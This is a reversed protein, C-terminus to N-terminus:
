TCNIIFQQVEPELLMEEPDLFDEKRFPKEPFILRLLFVILLCFVPPFFVIFLNLHEEHNLPVKEIDVGSHNQALNTHDM